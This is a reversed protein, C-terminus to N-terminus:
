PEVVTLRAQRALERAEIRDEIVKKVMDSIHKRKEVSKPIPLIIDYIRDGLTDIIDQTFSMSKIQAVVPPSSLVALLLYNDFLENEHVRIKYIHSQYVIETDYRSVMACTGILYTGDRVMLIDGERVDQKSAYKHYTEKDILHKPDVKIEWNSIDSTRVFPITGSGYSLKGVEDGTSISLIKDKVLDSVKYLTHSNGLNVMLKTPSPDYFRPALVNDRIREISVTYGLLDQSITQGSRFAAFKELIAPIDDKPIERARSDHGCWKAEAMFIQHNPPPTCKKLVLLCVKTHTGGKGSTKFLSEPMGIVAIPTTHDLIYQVVHRHNPNSLVSEPLVIGLRGGDRLLSICREVFLVQPAPNNAFDQLKEYRGTKKSLKWKHALEFNRRLNGSLAIIKSGFPPNTLVLSFQGLLQKTPSSDFGNGAWALSDTCNVPFIVDYQLALHLQALRVLYADKDVGHLQQPLIPNHDAFHRAAELLFSGSGCAPDCILDDTQPDTLQILARVAAKPTFFQGEQGRLATGIFTEYIDGILDQTSGLIDIDALERDIYAIHIADLLINKEDKFLTPFRERIQQFVQQYQHAIVEPHRTGQPLVKHKRELAVRCFACKVLEELLSEDRTSGLVQGALYNRIRRLSAKASGFLTLQYPEMEVELM